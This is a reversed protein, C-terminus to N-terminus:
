LLFVLIAKVENLELNILDEPKIINTDILKRAYKLISSNKESIKYQLKLKSLNTIEDNTNICYNIFEKYSNKKDNTLIEDEVFDRNKIIKDFKQHITEIDQIKYEM